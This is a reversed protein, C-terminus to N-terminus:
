SENDDDEIEYDMSDLIIGAAIELQRKNKRKKALIVIIIIVIEVFIFVGLIIFLLSYHSPVNILHSNYPFKNQGKGILNLENNFIKYSIYVNKSEQSILSVEYEVDENLKINYFIQYDDYSLLYSNKGKTIQVAYKKHVSNAFYISLSYNNKVYGECIVLDGISLKQENIYYKEYNNNINQYFEDLRSTSVKSISLSNFIVLLCILLKM